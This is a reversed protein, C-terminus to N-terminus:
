CYKLFQNYGRNLFWIGLKDATVRNTAEATHGLLLNFDFDGFSKKFNLMLNSTIFEYAVNSKSLRGKQYIELLLVVPLLIPIPVATIITM